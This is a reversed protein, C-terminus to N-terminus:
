RAARWSDVWFMVGFAAVGARWDYLGIGVASVILGLLSQLARAKV